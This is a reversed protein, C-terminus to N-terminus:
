RRVRRRSPRQRARASDRASELALRVDAYIEAPTASPSLAPSARSISHSRMARLLPCRMWNVFTGACILASARMLSTSSRRAALVTSKAGAPRTSRREPTARNPMPSGAAPEEEELFEEDLCKRRRIATSSRSSVDSFGRMACSRTRISVHSAADPRPAALEARSHVANLGRKAWTVEWPLDAYDLPDSFFDVVRAPADRLSSPGFFPLTVYPGSGVGWVALTQGFDEDNAELGVATRWM